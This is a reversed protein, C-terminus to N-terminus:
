KKEKSSDFNKEPRLYSVIAVNLIEGYFDEKLCKGIEVMKHVNGNGVSAWGYYIGTSVDAPLNDAVQEPFNATPIGLQKSSHSFGWVVAASTRCTGGSVMWKPSM